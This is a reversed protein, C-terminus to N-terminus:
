LEAEATVPSVLVFTMHRGLKQGNRQFRRSVIRGLMGKVMVDKGTLKQLDEETPIQLLETSFLSNQQRFGNMNNAAIEEFFSQLKKTLIKQLYSAQKHNISFLALDNMFKHPCQSTHQPVCSLEPCDWQSQSEGSSTLRTYWHRYSLLVPHQLEGIKSSKQNETKIYYLRRTSRSEVEARLRAIAPMNEDDSDVDPVQNHNRDSKEENTQDNASDTDSSKKSPGALQCSYTLANELNLETSYEQIATKKIYFSDAAAAEENQKDALVLHAPAVAYVKKCPINNNSIKRAAIVFAECVTQKVSDGWLKENKSVKKKNITLVKEWSLTKMTFPNNNNKLTIEFKTISESHLYRQLDSQIKLVDKGLVLIKRWDIASQGFTFDSIDHDNLLSFSFVNYFECLVLFCPQVMENLM